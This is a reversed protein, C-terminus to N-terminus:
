RRSKDINSQLTQYRSEGLINSYKKESSYVEQKYKQADEQVKKVYEQGTLEVIGRGSGGSILRKATEQQCVPCHTPPNANISYFDEWTHQCKEDLCMHIYTPM